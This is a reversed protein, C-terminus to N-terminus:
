KGNVILVKFFVKRGSLNVSDEINMVIGKERTGEITEYIIEDRAKVTIEPPVDIELDTNHIVGDTDRVDNTRRRVRAPFEFEKGPLPRGYRDTIPNGETDLQETTYWVKQHMPPKM